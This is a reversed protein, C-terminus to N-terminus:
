KRKNKIRAFELARRVRIVLAGPAFPKKVFDVAGLSLAEQESERSDSGTLFIVPIEKGYRETSRLRRLTEFGDLKPMMIDLLILDPREGKEIRKLLAEGSNICTVKMGDDSLLQGATRLTSISDDM